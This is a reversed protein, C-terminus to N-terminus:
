FDSHGKRNIISYIKQYYENLNDINSLKVLEDVVFKYNLTSGKETNFIM